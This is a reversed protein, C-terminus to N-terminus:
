RLQSSSRGFLGREILMRTEADRNLSYGVPAGPERDPDVGELAPQVAGLRGQREAGFMASVAADRYPFTAGTVPTM